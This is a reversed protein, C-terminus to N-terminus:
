DHLTLGTTVMGGGGTTISKRPHFSFVGATGMSGAYLGNLMAGSACAADEIIHIHQPVKQRLAPVDVCLGFLNVIIIAKTKETIKKLVDNPDINYSHRDVDAFVAEAGSYRVVNATAIWTFSPVIVEDGAKIDLAALVLHLGTTCSTV